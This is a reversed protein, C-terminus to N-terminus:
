RDLLILLLMDFKRLVMGKFKGFIFSQYCSIGLFFFMPFLLNTLDKEPIKYLSPIRCTFKFSMLCMGLNLIKSWKSSMNTTGTRTSSPLPSRSRRRRPPSRTTRRRPSRSRGVTRRDATARSRLPSPSKSSSSSHGRPRKRSDTTPRTPPSPSTEWRSRLHTLNAAASEGGGGVRQALRDIEAQVTSATITTAAPPPPAQTPVPARYAFTFLPQPPPVAPQVMATPKTTAPPRWTNALGGVSPFIPLRV